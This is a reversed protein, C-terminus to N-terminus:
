TQNGQKQTIAQGLSDGPFLQAFRNVNTLEKTPVQDRVITGTPINLNPTTIRSEQQIVPPEPDEYFKIEDDLLSTSRNDL